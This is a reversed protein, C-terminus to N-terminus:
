TAHILAIEGTKQDKVPDSRDKQPGQQCCLYACGDLEGYQCVTQLCILVKSETYAFLKKKQKQKKLCGYVETSASWKPSCHKINRM